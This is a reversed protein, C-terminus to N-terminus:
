SALYRALILNESNTAAVFQGEAVLINGDSQITAVTAEVGTRSTDVITGGTGFGSDLSGNATVRAIGAENISSGVGQDLQRNTLEPGFNFPPNSFSPDIVGTGLHRVLMVDGDRPADSGGQSVVYRGDPLFIPRFDAGDGNGAQSAISISTAKATPQAAGLGSFESIGGSADLAFVNGASDEGVTAFPVNAGSRVIGGTGFGSDLSGNSNYRLLAAQVTSITGVTDAALGGVLIKGDSQVIVADGFSGRRTIGTSVTPDTVVQGKLGFTTDPSGDSNFRMVLVDTADTGVSIRGAVVIKGDSQLAADAGLSTNADLPTEVRGGKGFGSDLRGNSNFRLIESGDVVLIKGDPQELLASPTALSSSDSAVSVTGHQGFTPDLGGAAASAPPAAVALWALMAVALSAPALRRVITLVL